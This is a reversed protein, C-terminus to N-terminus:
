EYDSADFSNVSLAKECSQIQETAWPENETTHAVIFELVDRASEFQEQTPKEM